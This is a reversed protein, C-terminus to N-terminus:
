FTLTLSQYSNGSLPFPTIDFNFARRRFYYRFRRSDIVLQQIVFFLRAVRM